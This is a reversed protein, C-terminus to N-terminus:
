VEGTESNLGDRSRGWNHPPLQLLRSSLDDKLCKQTKLPLCRWHLRHERMLSCVESPPIDSFYKDMRHRFFSMISSLVSLCFSHWSLHDTCSLPKLCSWWSHKGASWDRVQAKCCRLGVKWTGMYKIQFELTNYHSLKILAVKCSEISSTCTLSSLLCNIELMVERLAELTEAESDFPPMRYYSVLLYSKRPPLLIKGDKLFEKPWTFNLNTLKGQLCRSM